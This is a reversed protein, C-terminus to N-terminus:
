VVSCGVSLMFYTNDVLYKHIITESRIHSTM